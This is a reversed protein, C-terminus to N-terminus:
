FSNGSLREYAEVYRARTAEVVDDPLHPPTTDAAQDWGSEPSTLWNRVYQKDFSPQVKGEEYTDAPWYRSSDPTLVEDALILTGNEDLGFEFKTDALIIGKEEAIRAAESYIRLTADRLEEAREKGLKAVVADFSVNEDHEGQEAKTAPTFIPEPLRSAESLGEPLEIGCVTGSEQYEKLGSGTLYGRAVCEFPLMDLKKVVMARGLVEEPIREDDLPGALHNPFDIVDFFFKSTATLVRGKDPIAPDLSHDYASIRDSVVMLLTNEDVDYIDRVKGSALHKYSSLEPRM